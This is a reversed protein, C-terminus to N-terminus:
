CIKESLRDKRWKGVYHVHPRRLLLPEIGAGLLHGKFYALALIPLIHLFHVENGRKRHIDFVTCSLRVTKVLTSYYTTDARDIPSM